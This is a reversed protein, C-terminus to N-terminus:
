SQEVVRLTEWPAAPEDGALYVHNVVAHIAVCPRSRLLIGYDPFSVPPFHAPQGVRLEFLLNATHGECQSRDLNPLAVGEIIKHLPELPVIDRRTLSKVQARLTEEPTPREVPLILVPPMPPFVTRAALLLVGAALAGVEFRSALWPGDDPFSAGAALREDGALSNWIQSLVVHPHM